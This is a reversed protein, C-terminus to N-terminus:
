SLTEILGFQNHTLRYSSIVFICYRGIRTFSNKTNLLIFNIRPQATERGPNVTGLLVCMARLGGSTGPESNRTELKLNRILPDSEIKTSFHWLQDRIITNVIFFTMM